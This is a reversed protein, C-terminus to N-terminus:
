NKIKQAFKAPSSFHLVREEHEELFFPFFM